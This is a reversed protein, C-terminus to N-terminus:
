KKAFIGDLIKHTAGTNSRVYTSTIESIKERNEVIRAMTQSLEGFNSISFAGNAEILEKAEAFKHYKPGFVVPMGWTAAELINHIGAGFGGGIYAYDGYAYVGSLIGVCDVVMLTAEPNAKQTYRTCTRGSNKLLSEIESEHIEHPAVIFKIEPYEKMLPILIEIDPSWTSGCVMVKSGNAFNEIVMLRPARKVIDAVRDFRTDGAVTVQDVIGISSLLTASEENQVYFHDIMTLMRRFFGGSSKFFRMEPRFIASIVYSKAGSVRLQTLYNFWYEYKVFIAIDPKLAQVFRRANRKTDTRLYCIMDAEAYNKRVEYGSPSFFTLAIKASPNEQKIAEIVSRGQEFEGLSACHVWVVFDEETFGAHSVIELSERRGRYMKRVKVSFLAALFIAANFLYMSINYVITM